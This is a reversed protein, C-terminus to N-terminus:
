TAKIIIALTSQYAVGRWNVLALFKKSKSSNFSKTSILEDIMAILNENNYLAAEVRNNMKAITERIKIKLIM